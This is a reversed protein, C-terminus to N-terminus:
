LGVQLKQRLFVKGASSLTGFLDIMKQLAMLEDSPSIDVANAILKRRSGISGNKNSHSRSLHIHLAHESKFVRDCSKVPCNFRM